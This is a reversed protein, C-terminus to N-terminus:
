ITKINASRSFVIMIRQPQRGFVRLRHSRHAAFAMNRKILHNGQADPFRQWVHAFRQRSFGPANRIHIRKRVLNQLSKVALRIIVRIGDPQEHGGLCFGYLRFIM